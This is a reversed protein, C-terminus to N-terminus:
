KLVRKNWEELFDPYREEYKKIQAERRAKVAEKQLRTLGPLFHDSTHLKKLKYYHNAASYKNADIIPTSM